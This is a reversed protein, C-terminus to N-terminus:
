IGADSLEVTRRDKREQPREKESEEREAAVLRRARFRATRWSEICLSTHVLRAQEDGFLERADDERRM